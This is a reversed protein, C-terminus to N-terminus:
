RSSGIEVPDRDAQLEHVESLSDLEMLGQREQRSSRRFGVNPLSKAREVVGGGFSKVARRSNAGFSSFSGLRLSRLSQTDGGATFYQFVLRAAEQDKYFEAIGMASKGDKNKLAVSSGAECLSHIIDLSVKGPNLARNRIAAHLPLDGMKDPFNVKSVDEAILMRVTEPTWNNGAAVHLPVRDQDSLVATSAGKQLLFKTAADRIDIKDEPLFAAYHLMTWRSPFLQSNANWNKEILLRLISIVEEVTGGGTANLWNDWLLYVPPASHGNRLSYLTAGRELLLRIMPEQRAGIAFHLPAVKDQSRKLDIPITHLHDILQRTALHNASETDGFLSAIHLASVGRLHGAPIDLERLVARRATQNLTRLSSSPRKSYAPSDPTPPQNIAPPLPRDSNLALESTSVQDTSSRATDVAIATDRSDGSPQRPLPSIDRRRTPTPQPLYQIAEPAQTSPSQVIQSPVPITPQHLVEPGEAIHHELSPEPAVEKAEDPLSIIRLERYEAGLAEQSDKPLMSRYVTAKANEGRLECIRSLLGLSHYCDEHQKSLLTRQSKLTNECMCRALDLKGLKVYTQALLHGAKCRHNRHNDSNPSLQVFSLLAAEARQPTQVHYACVALRFQLDGRDCFAQHRLPLGQILSSAEWLLSSAEHWDQGEFAATGSDLAHKAVEIAFEDDSDSFDLVDDAGPKTSSTLDQSEETGETQRDDSFISPTGSHRSSANTDQTHLRLDEIHRVWDDVNHDKQVLHSKNTVAPIDSTTFSHAHGDGMVHSAM